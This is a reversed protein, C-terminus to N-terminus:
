KGKFSQMTARRIERETDRKKVDERRDSKEKGKGIGIEMKVRGNKWYMKIPVISFGKTETLAVIKRIESHNLLLKRPAAPEHNERNGMEYEEIYANYLWAEEKDVRAFSESIQGHGARLSKVETGKLVM